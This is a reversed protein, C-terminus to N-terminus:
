PDAPKGALYLEAACRACAGCHIVDGEPMSTPMPVYTMRANMQQTEGDHIIMRRGDKVFYQVPQFCTGIVPIDKDFAVNGGRNKPMAVSIGSGELFDKFYSWRMWAEKRDWEFDNLFVIEKDLVEELQHTGGDPITYCKFITALPKVLFSKAANTPGVLFVNNKKKRGEALAKYIACCFLDLAQNRTLTDLALRKWLGQPTCM